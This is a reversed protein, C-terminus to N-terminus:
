RNISNRKMEGDARVNKLLNSILTTSQAMPVYNETKNAMNAITALAKEACVKNHKKEANCMVKVLTSFFSGGGYQLLPARASAPFSLNQCVLLSNKRATENMETPDMGFVGHLTDMLDPHSIM